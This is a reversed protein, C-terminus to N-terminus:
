LITRLVKIYSIFLQLFIWLAEPALEKYDYCLLVEM